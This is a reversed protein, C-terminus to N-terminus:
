KAALAAEVARKVEGSEPEADADFRKLVKGDRGVLFKAFNWKVNGPFPSDKGTLLAYLPHRNAGNIEIKEFLPFTVRYTSTCFSKIQANTGPEQAGFQNCPFALVVFGKSEYQKFLAQMGEYQSTYGCESAVNVILLVKGRYADFKVSRGDIDRASLDYFSSAASTASAFMTLLVFSIAFTKM